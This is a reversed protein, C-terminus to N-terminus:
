RERCQPTHRKFSKGTHKHVRTSKLESTKIHIKFMNEFVASGEGFSSQIFLKNLTELFNNKIQDYSFTNPAELILIRDEFSKPLCNNIYILLRENASDAQLFKLFEQWVVSPNDMHKVGFLYIIFPEYFGSVIKDYLLFFSPYFFM